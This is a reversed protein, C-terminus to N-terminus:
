QSERKQRKDEEVHKNYKIEALKAAEIHIPDKTLAALQQTVVMNLRLQETLTGNALQEAKKTTTEITVLKGITESSTSKIAETNLALLDNTTTSIQQINSLKHINARNNDALTNKVEHAENAIIGAQRNQDKNLKAMLYTLYGSFCTGILTLTATILQALVADSLAFLLM